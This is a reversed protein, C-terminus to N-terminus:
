ERNQGILIINLLAQDERVEHVGRAVPHIQLHVAHAGHLSHHFAEQIGRPVSLVFCVLM